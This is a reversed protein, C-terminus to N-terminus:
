GAAGEPTRVAKAVVADESPIKRRIIDLEDLRRSAEMILNEVSVATPIEADVAARTEWEFDGLEWRLLDFVADETQGRVADELTQPDVAGSAVLIRGVREGTSAHADLARRLQGETVVGARVLKQGILERVLSSTAMVVEGRQFTVAGFGAERRVHLTGTKKALSVLRFVDALAFEELTGTLM